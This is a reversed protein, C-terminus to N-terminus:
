LLYVNYSISMPFLQLLSEKIINCVTYKCKYNSTITISYIGNM